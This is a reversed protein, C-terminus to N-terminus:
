ADRRERDARGAPFGAECREVGVCRLRCVRLGLKLLRRLARTGDVGPLPRLLV